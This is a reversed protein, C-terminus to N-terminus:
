RLIFREWQCIRRNSDYEDPELKADELAERREDADMLELEDADLGFLEFDTQSSEERTIEDLFSFEVAREFSDLTGDHNFDFMDGFIGKM